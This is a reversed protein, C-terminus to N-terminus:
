FCVGRSCGEYGPFDGCDVVLFRGPRALWVANESRRRAFATRVTIDGRGSIFELTNIITEANDETDMITQLYTLGSGSQAFEEILINQYDQVEIVREKTLEPKRCQYHQVIRADQSNALYFLRTNAILGGESRKWIFDKCLSDIYKKATAKEKKNGQEYTRRIIKFNQYLDGMSAMVRRGSINSWYKIWENPTKKKGNDAAKEDLTLERELTSESQCVEELVEILSKGSSRFVGFFGREKRRQQLVVEMEARKGYMEAAALAREEETGRPYYNLLTEAFARNFTPVLKNTKM